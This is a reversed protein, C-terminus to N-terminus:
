PTADPHAAAYALQDPTEQFGLLIDTNASAPVDPLEIVMTKGLASAQSVNGDFSVSTTYNRKEVINDGNAITLFWPLNLADGHDAPGNGVLFEPAVTVTITHKKDNVVCAGNLGTMQATSLIGGVDSRGPAFLTVTQAQALVAVNPCNAAPDPEFGAQYAPPPSAGAEPSHHHSCGALGTAALLAILAHSRRM